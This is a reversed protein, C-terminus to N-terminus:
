CSGHSGDNQSNMDSFCVLDGSNDGMEDPILYLSQLTTSALDGEGRRVKEFIEM